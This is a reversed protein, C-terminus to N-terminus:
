LYHLFYISSIFSAMVFISSSVPLIFLHLIFLHFQITITSLRSFSVNSVLFFFIFLLFLDLCLHPFLRFSFFFSLLLRAFLSVRSFFFHFFFALRLRHHLFLLPIFLHLHIWLRLALHHRHRNSTRNRRWKFILRPRGNWGAGFARM